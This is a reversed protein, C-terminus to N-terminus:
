DFGAGVAAGRGPRSRTNPAMIPGYIEPRRDAIRDIEHKGPVRIIHKQRALEPDIDAYLITEERDTSVALSRGLPDCIRSRGIFGFGREIGVRNVSMYYVTNEMARTNVAYEAAMEAGAPWNTPLVILDAGLLALCRAPESFGGDYCINMGFRLSGAAHVAFPRDGYTTFRDVGLYPLHTKRYSGLVGDGSVAVAANFLRDGDRELTGYIVYGGLERCMATMMETVPGPIPEAAPLAEAHSDFCYGTVACEPFVVLEAGNRRAEAYRDAIAAVNQKVAALQVDMQVGAIKM